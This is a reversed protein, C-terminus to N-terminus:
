NGDQLRWNLEAEGNEGQKCNRHDAEAKQRMNVAMRGEM